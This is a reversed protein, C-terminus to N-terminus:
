HMPGISSPLDRWLAGSRLAWSIGNLIDVRPVGRTKNALMPRITAWEDDSLKYRMIGAELNSAQIM